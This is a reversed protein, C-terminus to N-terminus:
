DFLKIGKQLISDRWLYGSSRGGVYMLVMDDLYEEDVYFGLKFSHVEDKGIYNFFYHSRVNAKVFLPNDYYCASDIGLIEYDHFVFDYEKYKENNYYIQAYGEDNEKLPIMNLDGLPFEDVWDGNGKITCDLVVFKVNVEEESVSIYPEEGWKYYENHRKVKGISGDKNIFDSSCYEEEDFFYQRDLSAISDYVQVEKVTLEGDIEVLPMSEGVSYVNEKKIIEPKYDSFRYCTYMCKEEKSMIENLYEDRKKTYGYYYDSKAVKNEPDYTARPEIIYYDEENSGDNKESSVPIKSDSQAPSPTKDMDSMMTNMEDPSVCGTLLILCIIAIPVIKKM